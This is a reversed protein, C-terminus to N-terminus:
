KKKKTKFLYYFYIKIMKLFEPKLYGYNLYSYIGSYNSMYKIASDDGKIHNEKNFRNFIKEYSDLVFKEHKDSYYLSEKIELRKGNIFRYLKGASNERFTLYNDENLVTGYPYIMEVYPIWYYKIENDM